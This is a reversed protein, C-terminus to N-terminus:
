FVFLSLASAKLSALAIKAVAVDPQLKALVSVRVFGLETIAFTAFDADSPLPVLYPVPQFNM